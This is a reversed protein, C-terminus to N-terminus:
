VVPQEIGEGFDEFCLSECTQVFADKWGPQPDRRVCDEAQDEVLFEILIVSLIKPLFFFLIFSPLWLDTITCVGNVIRYITIFYMAKKVLTCSFDCCGRHQRTNNLFYALM